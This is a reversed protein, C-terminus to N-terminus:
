DIKFGIQLGYYFPWIPQTIEGTNLDGPMIYAAIKITFPGDWGLGLGGLFAPKFDSAIAAVGINGFFVLDKWPYFGFSVRLQTLANFHPSVVLDAGLTTSLYFLDDVALIQKTVYLEPGFLTQDDPSFGHIGLGGSLQWGGELGHSIGIQGPFPIWLLMISATDIQTQGPELVRGTDFARNTTYLTTCSFMLLCVLCISLLRAVQYAYDQPINTKKM